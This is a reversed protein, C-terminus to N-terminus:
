EEDEERESLKVGTLDKFKISAQIAYNAALTAIGLMVLEKLYLQKDLLEYISQESLSAGIYLLVAVILLGAYKQFSVWVVEWKFENKTEALLSGAIMNALMFIPVSLVLWFIPLKIVEKM